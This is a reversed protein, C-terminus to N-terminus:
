GDYVGLERWGRRGYVWNCNGHKNGDTDTHCEPCHFVRPKPRLNRFNGMTLTVTVGQVTYSCVVEDDPLNPLDTEIVNLFQLFKKIHM